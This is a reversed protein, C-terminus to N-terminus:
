VITFPWNDCTYKAEKLSPCSKSIATERFHKIANIKKGAKMHDNIVELDKKSFTFVKNEYGRICVNESSAFSTDIELKSIDDWLNSARDLAVCADVIEDGLIYDAIDGIDNKRSVVRGAFEDLNSLIQEKIKNALHNQVANKVQFEPTM